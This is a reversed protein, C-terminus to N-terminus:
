LTVFERTQDHTALWDNEIQEVWDAIRERTWHHVDNLHAPTVKMERDARVHIHKAVCDPCKAEYSPHVPWQLSWRQGVADEAAGLVCTATKGDFRLIRLAGFAQQHLMSGLRIAESLRV